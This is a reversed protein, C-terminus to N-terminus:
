KEASARYTVTTLGRGSFEAERNNLKVRGTSRTTVFGSTNITIGHSLSRHSELELECTEVREEFVDDPQSSARVRGKLTIVACEEGRFKELRVFTALMKGSVAKIGNGLLSKIQIADVEWSTGPKQKGAPIHDREEFPSRLRALSEQQKLTPESEELTHAWREGVKESMVIHGALEDVTDVRRRGKKRDGYIFTSESKIVRTRYKTVVGEIVADVTYLNEFDGFLTGTITNAQGRDNTFTDTRQGEIRCVERLKSDLMPDPGRLDVGEENKAVGVDIVLIAPNAIPPASGAETLESM